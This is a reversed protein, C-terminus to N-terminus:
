YPNIVYGIIIQEIWLEVADFRPVIDSSNQNKIDSQRPSNITSIFTQKM